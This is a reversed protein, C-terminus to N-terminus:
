TSSGRDALSRTLEDRVRREYDVGRDLNPESGRLAIAATLRHRRAAAEGYLRQPTSSGVLYERGVVDSGSVSASFRREAYLSSTVGSLVLTETTM